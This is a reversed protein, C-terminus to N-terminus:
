SEEGDGWRMFTFIERKDSLAAGGADGIKIQSVSISSAAVRKWSCITNGRGEENGWDTITGNGGGRHDEGV